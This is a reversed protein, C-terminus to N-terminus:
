PIVRPPRKAMLSEVEDIERPALSIRELGKETILYDDEIRVGTNQYREVVPKVKAIFARNRPTDPLADLATTSIYIGPEITFADGQKFLHDKAYFQAPDHVALGLGHSIGHIMWFMAQKCARPNANCDAPWPLDLPADASEVLGLKALGRARIDFSSDSAAVSSMGPKSNREAAAQADRVLQYIARQEATFKGSVPLTRTIDAAYGEYETAADMVVVDGPKVDGRDRMYHLQTGHVGGGVISGYSPRAGGLRLFTGELAAQIEYEKTPEAISMAARHGETSIEAARRLLAMEAPSKKARLEDVIPHADRIEISSAHRAKLSRVFQQGRTLSDEAAFDADAFDNLVFYPLKEGALSDVFAPLAAFTRARMGFDRVVAASDPRRGYYFARRPAIPTLFLTSTGRGDRVVMVLAADPEHFNTLYNFSPLQYFAGFDSVPTRGGFAIVVGNRVHAALSDRRAAYESAPIQALAPTAAVLLVFLAGLLRSYRRPHTPM